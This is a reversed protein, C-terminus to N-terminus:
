LTSKYSNRETEIANVSEFEGFIVESNENLVETKGDEKLVIFVDKTPNPIIINNYKNEVVMEGKYNIVGYKEDTYVIFYKYESEAITEIEYSKNGDKSTIKLVTFIVGGIIAIVLLVIVLMKINIKEGM